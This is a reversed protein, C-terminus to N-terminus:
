SVEHTKWLNVKSEELAMTDSRVAITRVPCNWFYLISTLNTPNTGAVLSSDDRLSLHAGCIACNWKLLPGSICGYVYAATRRNRVRM